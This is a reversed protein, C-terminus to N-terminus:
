CIPVGYHEIDNLCKGRQILSMMGDVKFCCFGYIESLYIKARM